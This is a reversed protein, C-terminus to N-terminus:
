LSKAQRLPPLNQEMQVRRQHLSQHPPSRNPTGKLKSIELALTKRLAKVPDSWGHRFRNVKYYEAFSLVVDGPSVQAEQCTQELVTVFRTHNVKRYGKLEILPEFYAPPKFEKSPGTASGIKDPGAVVSPELLPETSPKPSIRMAKSPSNRMAMPSASKEDHFTKMAFEGDGNSPLKKVSDEKSEPINLAKDTPNAAIDKPDPNATEARMPIAYTNVRHPGSRREIRLEGSAELKKLLVQVARSTLRTKTALTQISPYAGGGDDHAHDAIALLLLLASGKQASNAWVWNLVRISM